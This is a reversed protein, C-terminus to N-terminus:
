RKSPKRRSGKHGKHQLTPCISGRGAGALAFRLGAGTAIITTQDDDTRDRERHSYSLQYLM